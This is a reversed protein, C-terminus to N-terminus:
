KKVYERALNINNIMKDNAFGTYYELNGQLILKKKDELSNYLQVFEDDKMCVDMLNKKEKKAKISMKKVFDHGIGLNSHNWGEGRLIATMAESPFNRISSLNDKLNDMHFALNPLVRSSNIRKFTEYVLTMPMQPVYRAQVSSRLDRQLNTHVLDYVTDMTAKILSVIGAINEYNIPNDKAADASSGGLRKANASSILEKIDSSYLIRVDDAFNGLVIALSTLGHGVDAINEKNTVQFACNDPELGLKKLVRKEFELGKGKGIIEEIGAGTGVIGSIKGKLNSFYQDCLKLRKTLRLAYNAFFSGLLIPSTYQLHTRGVQLLYDGNEDKSNEALNCLTEVTKSIESRITKWSKKFLYSRATDLIDYSTTGPHLLSKSKESIFYGLEDIVALQDHLTIKDEILGMRVPLIHNLAKKVELVNELSAKPVYGSDIINRENEMEYRTELLYYQVLACADWEADVTLEYLSEVKKNYKPHILHTECLDHVLSNFEGISVYINKGEKKGVFINLAMFFIYILLKFFLTIVLLYNVLFILKDWGPNSGPNGAQFAPTRSRALSSPCYINYPIFRNKFKRM